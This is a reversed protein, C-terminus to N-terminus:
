SFAEAPIKDKFNDFTYCDALQEPSAYANVSYLEDTIGRSCIGCWGGSRVSEAQELTGAYTYGLKFSTCNPNLHIKNGTPAWFVAINELEYILEATMGSDSYDSMLINDDQDPGLEKLEEVISKNEASKHSKSTITIELVIVSKSEEDINEIVLSATDTSNEADAALAESIIGKNEPEAPAGGIAACMGIASTLVVAATVTSKKDTLSFIEKVGASIIGTIIAVSGIGLLAIIASLVKGLTTIPYIDGYNVGTLTAISWWIGSFVNSFVEPQAYNEINYILLSSIFMLALVVVISSLLQNAKRRFVDAAIKFADTYRSIKFIRFIRLVALLHADLPLILPLLFPTLALLDIISNFSIVHLIRAVAKREDSDVDAVWLRLIYEVTFIVYIINDVCASINNYPSPIVITDLSIFIISIIIVALFATNLVGGSRLQKHLLIKLRSLRASM